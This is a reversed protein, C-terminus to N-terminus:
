STKGRKEAKREAHETHETTLNKERRDEKHRQAKTTLGGNAWPRRPPALVFGAAVAVGFLIYGATFVWPAADFFILRHAWYGIFAGPYTEQGALRRLHNELVTLPCAMGVVAQAAVAGIAALHLVRFWFNRVWAWGLVLGAVIAVMALVVFTVFAAHVVVVLDALVRAWLM